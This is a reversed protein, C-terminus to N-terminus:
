GSRRGSLLGYLSLGPRIMNIYTYNFNKMARTACHKESNEHPIKRLNWIHNKFLSFQQRNHKRSCDTRCIHISVKWMWDPLNMVCRDAEPERPLATFDLGGMRQGSEPSGSAKIKLFPTNSM